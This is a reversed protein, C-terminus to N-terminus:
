EVTVPREQCDYATDTGHEYRRGSIDGVEVTLLLSKWLADKPVEIKGSFGTREGYMTRGWVMITPFTGRVVRHNPRNPDAEVLKLIVERVGGYHPEKITVSGGVDYARGRKITLPSTVPTYQIPDHFRVVVGREFRALGLTLVALVAMTLAMPIRVSRGRRTSASM